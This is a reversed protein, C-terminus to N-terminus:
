FDNRKEIRVIRDRKEQNVTLNVDWKELVPEWVTLQANYYEAVMWLGFNVKADNETMVVDGGVDGIKMMMVPIEYDKSDNVVTIAFSNLMIKFNMLLQTAEKEEEIGEETTEKQQTEKRTKLREKVTTPDLNDITNM